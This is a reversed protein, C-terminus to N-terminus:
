STEKWFIRFVRGSRGRVVFVRLPAGRRDTTDWTEEEFANWFDERREHLLQEETLVSPYRSKGINVYFIKGNPVFGPIPAWEGKGARARYDWSEYTPRGQEDIGIRLEPYSIWRVEDQSM